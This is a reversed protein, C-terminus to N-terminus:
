KSYRKMYMRVANTSRGLKAGIQAATMPGYHKLLFAIEEETWPRHATNIMKDSM